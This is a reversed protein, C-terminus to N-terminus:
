LSIPCDLWKSWQTDSFYLHRSLVIWLDPSRCSRNQNSIRLWIRDTPSNCNIEAASTWPKGNIETLSRFRVFRGRKIFNVTKELKNNAFTGAAVPSGWNNRDASVYIEFEGTTGDFKSDQRPLYRFSDILYLQGLDIQIEHPHAPSSGSWQTIWYTCPDGDIANSAAGNEANIEQSDM